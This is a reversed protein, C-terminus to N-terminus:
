SSENHERGNPISENQGGQIPVALEIKKEKAGAGAHFRLALAALGGTSTMGVAILAVTTICVPCM